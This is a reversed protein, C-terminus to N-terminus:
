NIYSIKKGLPNLYIKKIINLKLSDIYDIINNVNM